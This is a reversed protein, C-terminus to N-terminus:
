RIENIYCHDETLAAHRAAIMPRNMSDYATEDIDLLARTEEEPLHLLRLEEPTALRAILRERVAAIRLAQRELLWEYVRAPAEEVRKPFDPALAEPFVLRDIMMVRGERWRQRLLFIVPAGAGLELREAEEARAPRRRLDLTRTESTVLEGDGSHLRYYRYFQPLSHHPMRGTVVAGTKRRRMIVGQRTLEGMARRITGYSVDFM